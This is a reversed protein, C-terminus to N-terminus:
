LWFPSSFLLCFRLQFLFLRYSFANYFFLFLVVDFTLAQSLRMVEVGYETVEVEKIGSVDKAEAEDEHVSGLDLLVSRDLSDRTGSLPPNRLNGVM